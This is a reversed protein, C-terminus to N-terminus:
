RILGMRVTEVQGGFELRALYSGSGVERGSSDRGDWVAEHRGQPMSDDVLTRVWRGAVDFVSLRVPSAEPLDYKITTRPNFPNPWAALSTSGVGGMPIGSIFDHVVITAPLLTTGPYSGGGPPLLTVDSATIACIGELEGQVTWRFLEGPGMAWQTAGLIVSYGHWLGPNQPDVEEFGEFVGFGDFLSGPGGSVTMVLAPDYEVFFEVTRVAIAEDLLVSLTVEGGPVVSSSDPSWRLIPDAFSTAAMALLVLAAALWRIM